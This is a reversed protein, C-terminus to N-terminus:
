NYQVSNVLLVLILFSLWNNLIPHIWQEEYMMPKVWKPFCHLDLCDLYKLSSKGTSPFYDWRLASIMRCYLFPCVTCVVSVWSSFPPKFLGFFYCLELKHQAHSCFYFYRDNVSYMHHTLCKNFMLTSTVYQSLCLILLWFDQPRTRASGGTHDKQHKSGENTFLPWSCEDSQTVTLILDALTYM